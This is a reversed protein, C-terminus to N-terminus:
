GGTVRRGHRARELAREWVALYYALRADPDDLGGGFRRDHDCYIREIPLERVALGCRWAEVWLEVPMGYGDETLRLTRLADSRYAKFGCFADTIGWGALDNVMRTIVANVRVRDAPAEGFTESEPLYRSGSVIDAEDLADLFAPIHRPEHQGDCDMTVIRRAGIDLAVHFGDILSRGYGRNDAHRLTVVEPFGALIEQTGDASGDDVVIITGGFQERVAELVGAVTPAENYVPLVVADTM